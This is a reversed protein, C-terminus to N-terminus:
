CSSESIGMGFAEPQGSPSMQLGVDGVPLAPSIAFEPDLAIPAQVQAPLFTENGGNRGTVSPMLYPETQPDPAGVGPRRVSIGYRAGMTEAPPTLADSDAEGQVFNDPM